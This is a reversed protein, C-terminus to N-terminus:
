FFHVSCFLYVEEKGGHFRLRRGIRESAVDHIATRGEGNRAETQRQGPSWGHADLIAKAAVLEREGADAEGFGAAGARELVVTQKSHPEGLGLVDVEVPVYCDPEARRVDAGGDPYPVASGLTETLQTHPQHLNPRNVVENTPM